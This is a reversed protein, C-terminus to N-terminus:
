QEAPNGAPRKMKRTSGKGMKLICDLENSLQLFTDFDTAAMCLAQKISQNTTMGPANTMLKTMTMMHENIKAMKNGLKNILDRATESNMKSTNFEKIQSSVSGVVSSFADYAEQLKNWGNEDVIDPVPLQEQANSSQSKSTPTAAEVWDALSSGCLKSLLAMAVDKNEEDVSLETKCSLTQTRTKSKTKKETVSFYRDGEKRFDGRAVAAEVTDSAHLTGWAQGYNMGLEIAEEKDEKTWTVSKQWSDVFNQSLDLVMAHVCNPHVASNILM